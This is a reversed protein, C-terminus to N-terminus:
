WGGFCSFKPFSTFTDRYTTQFLRWHSRKQTTTLSKTEVGIMLLTNKSKNTKPGGVTPAASRLYKKNKNNGWKAFPCSPDARARKEQILLVNGEANMEIQHKQKKASRGGCDVLTADCYLALQGPFPQPPLRTSSCRRYAATGPAVAASRAAVNAAFGASTEGAAFVELFEPLNISRSTCYHTYSVILLKTQFQAKEFITTSYPDYSNNSFFPMLALFPSM